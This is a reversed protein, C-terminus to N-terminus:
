IVRYRIPVLYSSKVREECVLNRPRTKSKSVLPGPLFFIARTCAIFRGVDQFPQLNVQLRIFNLPLSMRDSGGSLGKFRQSVFEEPLM